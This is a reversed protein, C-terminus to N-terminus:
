RRGEAKEFPNVIFKQATLEPSNLYGRALGDGGIYIEGPVGVPVLQLHSDLLYIQANAIAKGIPVTRQE